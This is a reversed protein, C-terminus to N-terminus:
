RGVSTYLRPSHHFAHNVVDELSAYKLKSNIWDVSMGMHNSLNKKDPFWMNVSETTTQLSSPYEPACDHLANWVDWGKGMRNKVSKYDKDYNDCLEALFVEENCWVVKDYNRGYKQLFTYEDKVVGYMQGSSVRSAFYSYVSHTYGVGYDQQLREILLDGHETYLSAKTNRANGQRCTWRLNEVRNDLRNRNIHDVMPLNELNPIFTIALLRHVRVLKREGNFRLNVYWYQPVGSLVQKIINGSEINTIIGCKTITYNPWEEIVKHEISM